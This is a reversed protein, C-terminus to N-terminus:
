LEGDDEPTDLPLDLQEPDLSAQLTIRDKRLIVDIWIGLDEFVITKPRDEDM